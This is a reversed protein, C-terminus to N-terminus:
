SIDYGHEEMYKRLERKGRYALVRVNEASIKLLSSIEKQSLGGFYQLVLIERKQEGIYQLAQYLLRHREERLIQMLLEEAKEDQLFNEMEQISINKKEKKRHNFYINRAVLYLWAQVNTHSDALSLLAKLFTEQVLDEALEVNKCLSLLYLYIERQYKEYLQKLLEKKM